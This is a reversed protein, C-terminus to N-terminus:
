LLDKPDKRYIFIRSLKWLIQTVRAAATLIENNSLHILLRGIPGPPPTRQLEVQNEIVDKMTKAVKGKELVNFNVQFRFDEWKVTIQTM